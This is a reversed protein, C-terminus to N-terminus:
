PNIGNESTNPMLTNRVDEFYGSHVVGEGVAAECGDTEPRVRGSMWLPSYAEELM